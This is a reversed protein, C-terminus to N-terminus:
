TASTSRASSRGWSLRRGHDSRQRTRSTSGKEIFHKIFALGGLSRDVHTGLQPDLAISRELLLSAVAEHEFCCACICAENVAALDTVNEDLSTRVAELDGLASLFKLTRPLLGKRRFLQLLGKARSELLGECASPMVVAGADILLEACEARTFVQERDTV